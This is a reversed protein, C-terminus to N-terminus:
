MQKIKMYRQIEPGVAKAGAAAVAVIGALMLVGKM